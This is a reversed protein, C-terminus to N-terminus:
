NVVADGFGSKEGEFGGRDVKEPQPMAQRHLTSRTEFSLAVNAMSSRVM